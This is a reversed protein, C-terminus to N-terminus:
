SGLGGGGGTKLQLSLLVAAAAVAAGAAWDLWKQPSDRYEAGLGRGTFAAPQKLALWAQWDAPLNHQRAGDQSPIGLPHLPLSPLAWFSPHLIPPLPRGPSSRLALLTGASTM